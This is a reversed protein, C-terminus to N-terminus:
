KTARIYPLEVIESLAPLKEVFEGFSRVLLILGAPVKPHLFDFCEIRVERVGITRL